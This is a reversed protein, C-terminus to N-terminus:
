VEDEIERRIAQECDWNMSSSDLQAIFATKKMRCDLRSSLFAEQHFNCVLAPEEGDAQPDLHLFPPLQV